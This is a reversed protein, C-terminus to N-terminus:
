KKTNNWLVSYAWSWISPGKSTNFLVKSGRAAGPSWYSKMLLLSDTLCYRWKCGKTSTLYTQTHSSCNTYWKHRQVSPQKHRCQMDEGSVKHQHLPCTNWHAVCWQGDCHRKPCEWLASHPLFSNSVSSQLLPDLELWAIREMGYHWGYWM